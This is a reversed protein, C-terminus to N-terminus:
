RATTYWFDRGDSRITVTGDLDTRLVLVGLKKFLELTEGHPYGYRNDTGASIVALDPNAIRLLPEYTGNWAGHHAVKLVEVGGRILAIKAQAEQEADGLLLAEFEGYGVQLVVSENNVNSSRYGAPPWLVELSFEELSLGGGRSAQWVVTGDALAKEEIKQLFDAYGRTDYVSPYYLIRRVQYRELVSLLGSLHDAQPHTLVILEIERDWPPLDRGLHTLIREGPGGDVLVQVEGKQILIADGQGVDYFRIILGAGGSSSGSKVAFSLAWGITVLVGLLLGM